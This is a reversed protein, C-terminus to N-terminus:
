QNLSGWLQFIGERGHRWGALFGSLLPSRCSWEPQTFVDLSM